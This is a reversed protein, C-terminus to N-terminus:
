RGGRYGGGGGGGRDNRFETKPRAENVRLARDGHQTGDLAAIAAQAESSNPMEVFAFGKSKNTLKDIIIRASDVRGHAEFSQRLEEETITYPLNGVYINM